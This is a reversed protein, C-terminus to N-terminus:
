CSQTPPTQSSVGCMVGLPSQRPVSLTPAIFDTLAFSEDKYAVKVLPFSVYKKPPADGVLLTLRPRLRQIRLQGEGTSEDAVPDGEVSDYRALDGRTLSDAERAAVALHVAVAREKMREAHPTLDVRLEEGRRSGLSVVLGDPMVAEVEIVRLTGGVLSAQDIKFYRAGWGFPAVGGAVYQLLAEQRLALQQFHQPTLLLGEHWQISEPIQHADM